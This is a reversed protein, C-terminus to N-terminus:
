NGGEEIVWSLDIRITQGKRLQGELSALTEKANGLPLNNKSDRSVVKSHGVLDPTTPRTEKVLPEIPKVPPLKVIQEVLRMARAQAGKLAPALQVVHEDSALAHRVEALSEQATAQHQEPLTRLLDFTQWGAADLNGDLEAAKAICEGMATESTAIEASALAAVISGPDTNQVKEVLRLAAAATKFRDAGELPVEFQALREKVRRCYEQCARRSDVAKKKVENVLSSVNGASPLRSATLGFISAARRVAEDWIDAAPLDVMRLECDDPISQLTASDYPGGHRYLSRNTQAAFMLIIFNEAEKPLGMPKPEDIWKRLQGVPISASPDAAKRLFHTTWHQGLGFHTADVDMEGVLLPNAIQRVLLRVSKDIALRGDAVQTAPFVLEFVKKLVSSKAETEFYPAAPFEHELAQSILHQMAGSLKAAVPPQPVFGPSLAVYHESLELDHTTDLSGQVTLDLGYAADLHNQVRQRLVSRQNELVSKAGQRDQPSLHNAYQGIREGTLIHELIVVMGLDKQADVSFFSPVWCLTKAGQPHSQMFRQLTSLDDRPGHGAEDFPFDIVLKWDDDGNELSSDPLERINKFLVTCSRKTNRWLFEHFQEFEGEGSIGVQEFLMQRVRRIRNGQNDERRAQ